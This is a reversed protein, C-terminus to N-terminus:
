KEPVATKAQNAEWERLAEETSLAGRLSVFGITRNECVIQDYCGESDRYIVVAGCIGKIVAKLDEIVAEVDNTISRCGDTNLDHLVVVVKSKYLTIDYEVDARPLGTYTIPNLKKM